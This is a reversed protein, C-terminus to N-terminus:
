DEMTKRQFFEELDCDKYETSAFVLKHEKSGKRLDEPHHSPNLGIFLLCNTKPHDDFFLPALNLSQHNKNRYKEWLDWIRNNIDSIPVSIGEVRV